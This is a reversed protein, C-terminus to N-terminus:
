AGIYRTLLKTLQKSAARATMSKELAPPTVDRYIRTKRLPASSGYKKLAGEIAGGLHQESVMEEIYADPHIKPDRPAALVRTKIVDFLVDRDTEDAGHQAVYSAAARIIPMHFGEGGPHDGINDLIVEFGGSSTQNLVSKSTSAGKIAGVAPAPPLLIAVNDKDKRRLGSRKTIPDDVGPEFIPAATYHPQVDNFPATDVIQIGAKDNVYRGWSKLEADSVPRDLWFWAHLSMTNGKTMGASSSLQWHYSAVRFEPPLLSILYEREREGPNKANFGTPLTIKDFDLMLWRRGQVPTAFAIGKLRRTLEPINLVRAGRIVFAKPLAELVQLVRSLSAIDRVTVASHRFNFGADYGELTYGAKNSATRYRKTAVHVGTCTLVTLEDQVITKNM